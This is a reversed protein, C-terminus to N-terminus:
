CALDKGQRLCRPPNGESGSDEVPEAAANPTLGAWVCRALLAGFQRLPQEERRVFHCRRSWFSPIPIFSYLRQRM